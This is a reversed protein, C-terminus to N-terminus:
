WSLVVQANSAGIARLDTRNILGAANISMALANADRAPVAGGHIRDAAIIGSNLTITRTNLSVLIDLNTASQNDEKSFDAGPIAQLIM